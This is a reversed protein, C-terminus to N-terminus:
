PTPSASASPTPTATPLGTVWLADIIANTYGTPALNSFQTDVIVGDRYFLTRGEEVPLTPHDWTKECRIGGRPEYCTYGDNGLAYLADRAEREPSYGIVTVLWTGAAGPDGWVCVRSSDARIGGGMGDANLPVGELQALVDADLIDRCGQPLDAPLATTSVSEGMPFPAITVSPSPSPATTTLADATTSSEPDPTGVCGALMVTALMLAAGLAAIRAPATRTM